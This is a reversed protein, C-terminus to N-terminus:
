LKGIMGGDDGDNNENFYFGTKKLFYNVITNSM